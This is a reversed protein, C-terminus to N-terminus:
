TWNLSIGRQAQGKDTSEYYTWAQMQGEIEAQATRATLYGEDVLRQTLAQIRADRGQGRRREGLQALISFYPFNPDSGYHDNGVLWREISRHGKPLHGGRQARAVNWTHAELIVLAPDVFDSVKPLEGTAVEAWPLDLPPCNSCAGCRQWSVSEGFYRLVYRRRCQGERLQQAYAIMESLKGAQEQQHPTAWAAELQLDGRARLVETPYLLYGREFARYILLNGLDWGTLQEDLGAVPCGLDHALAPVDLIFRGPHGDLRALLAQALPQGNPELRSVDALFEAAPRNVTVAAQLSFDVDRRVLGWEEFLHLMVKLRTEDLEEGDSLAECAHGPDLLIPAEPEGPLRQRLYGYLRRLVERGPTGSERFYDHIRRDTPHYLLVGYSNKGDRGARGVEQYYSELDGPMDYHIVYRVDAKNIGLGFAKTAVVVDVTGAMFEEQVAQRDTSRMRGHYPLANIGYVRLQHALREADGTRAVYVIAIENRQQATHLIKLLQPLKDTGHVIPYASTHRNYVVLSIEPRDFSAIVEIPDHLNLRETIVTRINETATATLAAVPARKGARELMDYIYLFDPRFDTGWTAVCHAEDVVLQCIPVQRLIAMLKPDRLREPAVYLLRVRDAAVEQLIREREEARMGSTIAAVAEIGLAHLQDVQDKMLAILPSIVLTLGQRILAPFQFCFSKGAGTPLLGLVDRGALIAQIVRAQEPSRFDAHNPGFLDQMAQRLLPRLEDFSDWSLPLHAAFVETWHRMRAEFGTALGEDPLGDWFGDAVEFSPEFGQMFHAIEEYTRRRSAEFRDPTEPRFYGPLSALLEPKYSKRHIGRDYLLVVGYDAHRRILRGFGQKFQILMLPLIYPSFRDVNTPTLYEEARAQILPDGMMPFPLKEMVVFSLAKGPVDIGEWFSKLGLLVSEDRSSFEEKLAKRSQNQEQCFVPISHRGLASELGEIGDQDSGRFAYEMRERATFLCLSRGGALQLFYALEQTLVQKFRVLDEGRPTAELYDTLILFAREDYRFESAIQYFREPAVVGTLGLRDAFFGFRREATTLTASTFVTPMNRSYIKAQLHPGVRLPAKKLAWDVFPPRDKRLYEEVELSYVWRADQVQLIENFLRAQDAAQKTLYTIERRTEPAFPFAADPLRDLHDKLRALQEVLNNLRQQLDVRFRDIAQWRYDIRRPDRLLRVQAGYRPHLALGTREVYTRLHAGFGANAHRLLPLARELLERSIAQVQVDAPLNRRLRLLLGTRAAPDHLRDVLARLTSYSVEQTLSSTCADELNHAEDVVLARPLPWGFEGWPAVLLLAHNIVLLDAQNARGLTRHYFCPLGRECDTCGGEDEYGIRARQAAFGPYTREFWYHLEDLMGEHTAQLWRLVYFIGLRFEIPAGAAEARLVDFASVSAYNAKGKLVQYRFPLWAKLRELEGVLQDQLNRTSTSIAVQQGTARAWHITPLLYALTKGTGTPAEIMTSARDALAQCVYDVMEQQRPRYRFEQQTAKAQEELKGGPGFMGVLAAPDFSLPAPEPGDDQASQEPLLDSLPVPETAPQIDASLLSSLIYESRPLLRLMEAQVAGPLLRLGAWLAKFVHHLFLVDVAADHFRSDALDLGMADLVHRPADAGVAAKGGDLHEALRELTYSPLSPAVLLGLEMTDVLPNDPERNLYRQMAQRLFRYDFRGNHAVLPWSGLFAAIKHIQDEIPPSQQITALKAPDDALNLKQQLSFPLPKTPRAFLNCGDVIQGNEVRVAAFQIISESRPDFGSTEFDFVVYTTLDLPLPVVPLADLPDGERLPPQEEEISLEDAQQAELLRTLVWMQGTRETFVERNGLIDNLHQEQVFPHTQRLRKLLEAKHLGEPQTELLRQVAQGLPSIPGM